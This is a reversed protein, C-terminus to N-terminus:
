KCVQETFICISRSSSYRHPYIGIDHTKTHVSKSVTHVFRREAGRKARIFLNFVLICVKQMMIVVVLTINCAIHM